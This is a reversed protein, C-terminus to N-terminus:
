RPFFIATKLDALLNLQGQPSAAANNQEAAAMM